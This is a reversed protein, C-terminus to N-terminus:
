NNRFKNINLWKHLEVINSQMDTELIIIFTNGLILNTDDAFLISKFYDSINPWKYISYFSSIRFGFRALGVLTISNNTTFTSYSSLKPFLNQLILSIPNNNSHTPATTELYINLNTPNTIPNLSLATLRIHIKLIKDSFTLSTKM